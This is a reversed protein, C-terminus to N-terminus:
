KKSVASYGCGPFFVPEKFYNRIQPYDRCLQPRNRYNTCANHIFYRCTFLLMQEDRDWEQFQFGNFVAVWWIVIGRLAPVRAM